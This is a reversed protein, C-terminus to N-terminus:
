YRVLRPEALRVQAVAEDRVAAVNDTLALMVLARVAQAGTETEALPVSLGGFTKAFVERERWGRVHDRWAVELGSAVIDRERTELHNVFLVLCELVKTRADEAEAEAVGLATVTATAFSTGMFGYTPPGPPPLPASAYLAEWFVPLLHDRAIDPGLIRAMEGLSAALTRRVKGLKRQSQSMVGFDAVSRSLGPSSSDGARSGTNSAYERALQVYYDSVEHWRQPGVTLAVAPFNFACVLPRDLDPVPDIGSTEPNPPPLTGPGGPDRALLRRKSKPHHAGPTSPASHALRPSIIPVSLPPPELRYGEPPSGIFIGLLEAPPGPEDNVFTHIVEGLVELASCRVSRSKDQTFVQFNALAFHRREESSLRVLIPPLAFLASQRVQWTSDGIFSEYM